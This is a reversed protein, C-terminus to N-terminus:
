LVINKSEIPKHRANQLVEVDWINCDRDIWAWYPHYVGQIRFPRNQRFGRYTFTIRLPYRRCRGGEFSEAHLGCRLVIAFHIDITLVHSLRSKPIGFVSTASASSSRNFRTLGDRILPIHM